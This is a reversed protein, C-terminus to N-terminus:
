RPDHAKSRQPPSNGAEQVLRAMALAHPTSTQQLGDIVGSQNRPPQNQSVKWKGLLRSIVLEIGVIASLLQALYDPSADSVKWPDAFSAENHDTLASLQDCLWSPDDHVRLFGYAHVVAYNWTPVANGTEKKTAYWSPTIYAQPGHFIALTEIHELDDQLLPNNRALHGRLTGFPHPQSSLHFPIHNANIGSKGYTVLTALPYTQILSHLTPIDSEEFVKPVHM